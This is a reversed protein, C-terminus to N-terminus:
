HVRGFGEAAIAVIAALLLLPPPTTTVIRTIGEGVEVEENSMEMTIAQAQRTSHGVEWDVVEGEVEGEVQLDMPHLHREQLTIPIIHNNLVSIGFQLLLSYSFSFVIGHLHHGMMAAAMPHTLPLTAIISPINWDM